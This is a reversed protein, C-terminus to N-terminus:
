SAAPGTPVVTVDFADVTYETDEDSYVSGPDSGEIESRLEEILYDNEGKPGDVKVLKAKVHFEVNITHEAM